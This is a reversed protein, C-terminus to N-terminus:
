HFINTVGTLELIILVVFVVGLVALLGGAPLTDINENLLRLEEETLAGLREQVEAPDAGLAIMQDRVNDQAIFKEVRNRASDERSQEAEVLTQTSMISGYSVSPLCTGLLSLSLLCALFRKGFNRNM